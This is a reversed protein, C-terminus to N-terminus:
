KGAMFLESFDKAGYNDLVSQPPGSAIVSGGDLLHARACRLAEDMYSTSMIITAGEACIGRMLQWLELRSVPDVGITPEDLLLLKPSRLLVCALGLKKYMGGSLRGARREAFNELRTLHLLRASKERFESEPLGYLGAFFELHEMCSLDAYLSQEQPFYAIGERMQQFPVERGGSSYAIAGGDARLLGALLRLLTTKGAGNPGIVGHLLGGEFDLSVNKLAANKGLKKSVADLRVRASGDM